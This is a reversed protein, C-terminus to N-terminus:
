LARRDVVGWVFAQCQPILIFTEWLVRDQTACLLCHPCVQEVCVLSPAAGSDFHIRFKSKQPVLIVILDCFLPNPALKWGLLETVRAEEMSGGICALLVPSWLCCSLKPSGQGRMGQPDHCGFWCTFGTVFQTLCLSVCAFILM